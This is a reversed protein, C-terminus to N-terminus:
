PSTLLTAILLGCIESHIMLLRQCCLKGMLVSAPNQEVKLYQDVVKKLSARALKAYTTLQLLLSIKTM